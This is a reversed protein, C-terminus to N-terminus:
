PGLILPCTVVEGLNNLAKAQFIVRVKVKDDFDNVNVTTDIIMNKKRRANAGYALVSFFAEWGSEVNVEKSASM